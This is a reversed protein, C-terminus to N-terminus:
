QQSTCSSLCHLPHNQHIGSQLLECAATTVRMQGLISHMSDLVMLLQPESCPRCCPECAHAM